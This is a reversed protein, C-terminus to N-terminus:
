GFIETASAEEILHDIKFGSKLLSNYRIEQLLFYDEISLFGNMNIDVPADDLYSILCNLIFTLYYKLNGTISEINLHIAADHVIENRIRYCRTLHWELNTRHKSVVKEIENKETIFKKYGYARFALLPHSISYHQIIHDFTAVSKLFHLDFDFAPILDNLKLRQIDQCFETLNRKIYAISHAHIFYEKLRTITNDNIDYNSFIYELGIWYNIFKQELEDADRGLRLHRFASIIKQISERQIERKESLRTIKEQLLEYLDQNNKYYGDPIYSVPLVNALQRRQPGIVLCKKYFDFPNDPFGLHLIDMTTFLEKKAKEIVSVYDWGKLNIKLYYSDNGGKAFFEESKNNILEFKEKDEKSLELKSKLDINKTKGAIKDLRFVVIFDDKARSGLLKLNNFTDQFHKATTNSFLFTFESYLFGKSYGYNILETGLYDALTNLTVFESVNLSPTSM